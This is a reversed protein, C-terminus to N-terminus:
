RPGERRVNLARARADHAARQTSRLKAREANFRVWAAREQPDRPPSGWETPFPGGATSTAREELALEPASM